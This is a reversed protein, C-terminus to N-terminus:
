GFDEPDLHTSYKDLYPLPTDACVFAAVVEGNANRLKDLEGAAQRADLFRRLGTLAFGSSPGGLIGSRCLQLSQRFSEKTGVEVIEDAASRWDFRIEALKAASRVGPVAQGPACIAGLITVKANLRRFYASAGMLTGTTGLGTVFMTLKGGSQEWVQPAIWKELAAPNDPNEYQGPNFFGDQQGINRAEEIGSLEGSAGSKFQPHVGSLRLLELKGPAIDFPVFATVRDVGFQPALIGLSFATNGSSNEVITHVNALRGDEKAGSLMELAALSKINLLPLLYACKAFLRVGQERLPNLRDPLEVLPIFSHCAPNLFNTVSSPGEFLNLGRYEQTEGDSHM